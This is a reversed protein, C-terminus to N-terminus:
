NLANTEPIYIDAEAKLKNVLATFEQQSIENERQKLVAKIEDDAPKADSDVVRSVAVIASDGNALAIQDFSLQGQEPKNLTFATQMIKRDAETSDRKVNNLQKIEADKDKSLEAWVESTSAAALKGQAVNAAERAKEKAKENLIVNKIEAKVGDLKKPTATQHEKLRIVVVHRNTIEIADSNLHEKLVADEFAVQRVKNNSAIGQGNSRTFLDTTKITLKLEDAVTDLSEPNEYAQNALLEAREYFLNELANDRAETELEKRKSDFSEIEPSKIEDLKILHYGFTSRVPESIDGVNMAYLAEEFPKVMVGRSVWGLDGGQKSSGIDESKEKALQDFSQGAIIQQRIETLQKEVQQTQEDSADASLNILIHRAKRQEENKTKNVYAEYQQKLEAEDVPIEGALDEAKLEVYQLSVKEPHMYRQQDQEFRAQIEEDTVEISSKFQSTKYLLYSVDRTQNKLRWNQVADYRTAFGTDNIAVQLQDTMLEQRYLQEFGSLSMGQSSIIQEYLRQEFSGDQTFADIDRIAASLKNDSVRFGQKVVAQNLVETTILQDLVQQKLMRDYAEGTPMNQGFMSKLRARQQSVARDYQQVSIEVDNVKAAFKDDGGGVYQQIGWLAFPISIMVVIIWGLVGKIRDNIAQLM